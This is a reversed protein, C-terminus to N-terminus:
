AAGVSVFAHNKTWSVCAIRWAVGQPLVPTGRFRGSERLERAHAWLEEPSPDGEQLGSDLYELRPDVPEEARIEDAQARVIRAWRESRNFIEAIDADELGWDKMAILALREPSLPWHSRVLRVVGVAQESDLGMSEAVPKITEGNVVCRRHLDAASALAHVLRGGSVNGFDLSM